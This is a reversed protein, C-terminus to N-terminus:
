GKLKGCIGRLLWFIRNTKPFAWEFYHAFLGIEKLEKRNQILVIRLRRLLKASYRKREADSVKGSAAIEECQHKYVWCYRNLVAQLVPKSGHHKAFRLQDEWAKIQALKAPSWSSNVISDGRQFYYYLPEDVIAVRDLSFLIRYWISVDEYLIGVPYRLSQFITRHYLKGWAFAMYWKTYEEEPSAIIARGAVHCDQVYEETEYKACQSLEVGNNKVAAYLLELYRAHVWDDSDIFSLWESDSNAFAWEIGTNRAASLGGNEQHIVHIRSDKTAYEDCIAGCSDPSGDDVLILEFDTFTQALISHVCRHIYPEVKYVPVIVSIEPM